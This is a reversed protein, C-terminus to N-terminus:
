ADGLATRRPREGAKSVALASVEAVPAPRMLATGLAYGLGQALGQVGLAMGKSVKASAVAEARQVALAQRVGLELAARARRRKVSACKTALLADILTSVEAPLPPLDPQSSESKPKQTKIAM